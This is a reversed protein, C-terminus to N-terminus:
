GVQASEVKGTKEVGESSNHRTGNRETKSFFARFLCIHARSISVHKVAQSMKIIEDCEM